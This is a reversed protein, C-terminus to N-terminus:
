SAALRRAAALLRDRQERSVRVPDGERDWLERLVEGFRALEEPHGLECAAEEWILRAGDVADLDGRVMRGAWWRAMEWRAAALNEPTPPVLGLEVLVADFLEAVDDLENRGLGALHALSPSVGGALLADLAAQVIAARDAGYWGGFSSDRCRRDAALCRLASLAVGVTMRPEGDACAGVAPDAGGTGM